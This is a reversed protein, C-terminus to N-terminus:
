NSKFFSRIEDDFSVAGGSYKLIADMQKHSPLCHGRRWHNVATRHVRLLKATEIMGLEDIWQVLSKKKGKVLKM